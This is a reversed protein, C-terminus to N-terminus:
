ELAETHEVWGGTDTQLVPKLRAKRPVGRGFESRGCGLSLAGHGDARM